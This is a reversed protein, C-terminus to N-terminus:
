PKPNLPKPNQTDSGHSYEQSRGSSPFHFSTVRNGRWLSAGYCFCTKVLTRQPKALDLVTAVLLKQFVVPALLVAVIFVHSELKTHCKIHSEPKQPCGQVTLGLSLGETLWQRGSCSLQWAAAEHKTATQPKPNLVM